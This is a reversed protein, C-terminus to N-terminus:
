EYQGGKETIFRNLKKYLFIDKVIENEDTDNDSFGTYCSFDVPVNDYYFYLQANNRLYGDVEKQTAKLSFNDIKIERTFINTVKM